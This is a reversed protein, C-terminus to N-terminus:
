SSIVTYTNGIRKFDGVTHNRLKKRIEEFREITEPAYLHEGCKLCVGATVEIM